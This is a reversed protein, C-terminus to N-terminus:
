SAGQGRRRPVAPIELWRVRGIRFAIVVRGRGPLWGLRVPWGRTARHAVIQAGGHDDLMGQQKLWEAFRRGDEAAGAPPVANMRAYEQFLDDYRGGLGAALAPWTKEVSRARKHYLSRAAVGVREANIGAPAAAEGALAAVLAGQREALTRRDDESM